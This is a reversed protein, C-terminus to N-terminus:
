ALEARIADAFRDIDGQDNYLHPTVRLRHGRQSVSVGRKALRLALDAPANGPLTLCLYHPARDPTDCVAGTSRVAEEIANTRASLGDILDDGLANLWRLSELASPVLQFASREGMDFRRAGTMYHDTYNVLGAFDEAGERTIWGAELPTASQHEPAVYLYGMTYPGLLWKYGAAVAYDPKVAPLPFSLAGLSQTIDLVLRAGTRDAKDRVAALDVQGGDAWHVQPIAIIATAPGIAELVADTWSQNASRRATKVSGGTSAAKERWVYVNSPFQADLVVINQGPEMPLNRAAIALGYSASPILAIDDPTTAFLMAAQTRLAEPRDFFWDQVNMEWPRQRQEYSCEGAQAAARPMPGMYACNLYALNRPLDFDPRYDSTIM